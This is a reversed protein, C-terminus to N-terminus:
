KIKLKKSEEEMKRYCGAPRDRGDGDDYYGGANKTCTESDEQYLKCKKLFKCKGMKLNEIRRSKKQGLFIM